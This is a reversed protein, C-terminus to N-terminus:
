RRDIKISKVDGTHSLWWNMYPAIWCYEKGDSKSEFYAVFAYIPVEGNGFDMKLNVGGANDRDPIFERRAFYFGSLRRLPGGPISDGSMGDVYELERPVVALDLDTKALGAGYYRPVYLMSKIYFKEDPLYGVLPSLKGMTLVKGFVVSEPNQLYAKIYEKQLGRLVFSYYDVVAFHCYVTGLFAVSLAASWWKYYAWASTRNFVILKMSVIIILVNILFWIRGPFFCVYIMVLSMLITAGIYIMVDQRFVAKLRGRVISWSLLVIMIALPVSDRLNFMRFWPTRVRPPSANFREWMGPCTALIVVGAFLGSLVIITRRNRYDKSFLILACVGAMVPVGVIEHSWGTVLGLLFGTAMGFANGPSKNGNCLYWLLLLALWTSFVYNLQYDLVGLYDRWPLGFTWAFIAVPVIASKRWDIRAFRFSMFIISGMLITMLGSGVWKPFMLLIPAIFNGLRANDHLYHWNWTAWIGSVPVGGKFINGGQEPSSIGQSEFWPQLYEMYWYDDNYKPMGIFFLGIGALFLIIWLCNWCCLRKLVCSWEKMEALCGDYTWM